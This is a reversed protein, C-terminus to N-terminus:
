HRGHGHAHRRIHSRKYVDTQKPAEATVTVTNWVTHVRQKCTTPKARHSTLGTSKAAETQSSVAEAQSSVSVAAPPQSYTSEPSSSVAEATQSAQSSVETTSEQQASYQSSAATSQAASSVKSTASTKEAAASSSSESGSSSGSGVSGYKFGSLPNDGPLKSLTGDVEEDVGSEIHCEETNKGYFLGPCNDMGGTGADCTDIIHQLLEEDWGAIFDAHSSYGTVDGNSWVFPQDEKGEEWRGQFKQTDWYVEFFLHPVHTYGDPCDLKGNNDEPWAMNNKYDTLGADPNYCSPFHVDARLPSYLGDCTRYPFGVGEGLNNPDGVGEMTGDSDPNWSPPDYINNLRPCTLRAPNVPGKSPDLNAKSGTEPMTRSM